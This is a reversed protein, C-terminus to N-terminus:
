YSSRFCPRAGLTPPHGSRPSCRSQPACARTRWWPCAPSISTASSRWARTWGSASRKCWRRSTRTPPRCNIGFLAVAEIGLSLAQRFDGAVQLLKNWLFYVDAREVDSAAAGLLARFMAAAPDLRGALFECEALDCCLRFRAPNASDHREYLANATAYHRAASDWAISAKAHHGAAVNLRALHLAEDHEVALAVGANLQNVIDFLAASDPAPSARLLGQGIKRHLVAREEVPVLSYAAQQIRDHAFTYVGADSRGRAVLLGAELAPALWERAVPQPRDVIAAMQALTFRNGFASAAVLTERADAELKGIREVLLAALNDTVREAAIDDLSWRWGGLDCDRVLLKRDLLAKIFENVFFPNGATKEVVLRALPLSDVSSRHLTAALHTAVQAEDLPVLLLSDCDVGSRGIGHRLLAFPHEPGVENDRFALVVALGAVGDGVLLNELLALTAADAWQMDDFLVVLPQEASACARMFAQLVLRFRDRAEGGDLQAVPPLEGLVLAIEPVLGALVAGNTGIAAGLRERWGALRAPDAALVMRMLARFAQGLTSYPIDRQHQDFKGHVFVVSPAAAAVEHVLASKGIGAAGAVFAVRCKGRRAAEAADALAARERERGILERSLELLQPLDMTALAFREPQAGERLDICVRELDRRLGGASQYREEPAKALLKTVIECVVAPMTPAAHALPAPAIALHAHAWGLADSAEYPLRASALLYLSIGLAYLDSRYDVGSDMRQTQEPALFPLRAEDAVQVALLSGYALPVAHQLGLFQARMARLDLVVHAPRIDQHVVGDDHLQALASAMACAADAFVRADSLPALAALPQEHGRPYVLLSEGGGTAELALPALVAGNGALSRALKFEIEACARDAHAYLWVPTGDAMRTAALLKGSAAQAEGAL